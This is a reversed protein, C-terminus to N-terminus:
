SAMEGGGMEQTTSSSCWWVPVRSPVDIRASYLGARTFSDDRRRFSSTPPSSTYGLNSDLGYKRPCLSHLGVKGYKYRMCDTHISSYIHLKWNLECMKASNIHIVFYMIILPNSSSTTKVSFTFHFSTIFEMNNPNEKLNCGSNCVSNRAEGQM